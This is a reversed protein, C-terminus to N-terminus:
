TIPTSRARRERSSSAAGGREAALVVVAAGEGVVFGDRRADFPCSRGRASLAGLMGFGALM